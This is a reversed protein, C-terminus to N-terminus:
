LKSRYRCIERHYAAIVAFGSDAFRRRPFGLWLKSTDLRGYAIALLNM